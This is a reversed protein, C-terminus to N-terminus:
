RSSGREYMKTAALSASSVDDADDTFGMAGISGDVTAQRTRSEYKYVWSYGGESGKEVWSNRSVDGFGTFTMNVAPAGGTGSGHDSVQLTGTVTATNLKRSIRVALGDGYIERYSEVVCNTEPEEWDEWEAAHEGHGGGGTPPLEGAPCTWDAVEGYAWGAKSVELYGVHVNGAVGGPLPGMEIWSTSATMDTSRYTWRSGAEAPTAVAVVLPLSVATALASKMFAHM